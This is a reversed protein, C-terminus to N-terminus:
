GGWNHPFFFGGIIKNTVNLVKYRFNVKPITHSLFKLKNKVLHIYGHTGVYNTSNKKMQHSSTSSNYMLNGYEYTATRRDSMTKNKEVSRYVNHWGM